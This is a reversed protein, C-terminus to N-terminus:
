AGDGQSAVGRLQPGQALMRVLRELPNFQGAHAEGNNVRCVFM